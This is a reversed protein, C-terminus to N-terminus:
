VNPNIASSHNAEQHMTGQKECPLTFIRLAPILDNPNVDQIAIDPQNIGKLIFQLERLTYLKRSLDEDTTDNSELIQNLMSSLSANNTQTISVPTNMMQMM